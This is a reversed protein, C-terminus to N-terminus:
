NISIKEGKTQYKKAKDLQGNLTYVEALKLLFAREMEPSDIIYDLGDQYNLIADSYKKDKILLTGHILYLIPQSPYKEISSQVLAKAKTNKGYYLQLLLTDKILSFNNPDVDLNKQYVDLLSETSGEQLQFSTLEMFFKQNDTKSLTQEPLKEIETDYYPNQKGYTRFKSLVIKKVQDDIASNSTLKRMSETAAVTNGEDLNKLFGVYELMPANPVNAKFREYVELAEKKKNAGQYLEFLQVYLKPNAKDRQIKREIDVSQLNKDKSVSYISNRLDEIRSDYSFNKKYDNLTELSEGYQKTYVYAGSLEFKYKEDIEVLEKLTSIRENYKQEEFLVQQLEKLIIENKPMLNLAIVLNEEASAYDKLAYNNKAKEFFLVPIDRNIKLCADLEIIAIDYNEILRQTLAEYFHTELAGSVNSIDNLMKPDNVSQASVSFYFACLLFVRLHQSLSM